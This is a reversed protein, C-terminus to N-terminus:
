EDGSRTVLMAATIHCCRKRAPCRCSWRRRKPDYDIAYQGSEGRCTAVVRGQSVLEVELRGDGLYRVAKERISERSM